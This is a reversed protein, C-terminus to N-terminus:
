RLERAISLYLGSHINLLVHSRSKFEYAPYPGAPIRVLRACRRRAVVAQFDRAMPRFEFEASDGFRIRPFGTKQRLPAM